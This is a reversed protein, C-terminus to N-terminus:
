FDDWGKGYDKLPYCQWLDRLWQSGRDEYYWFLSSWKWENPSSVGCHKVPNYHIYNLTANYHRESRIARDSYRYWVKRGLTDDEINWERSTCGHIKQFIIGLVDFTEVKALIHYHNPLVVWASIEIGPISFEQLLLTQLHDRRPPSNLHPKHEYCAATLLYYLQGRVPHPPQHAPNGQRIREQVLERKQQPTLKRYRYM